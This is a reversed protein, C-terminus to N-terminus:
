KVEEMYQHLFEFGWGNGERLQAYGNDIVMPNDIIADIWDFSEAGYPNRVTALLPVDYDKYYHPLVPINYADALAASRIWEEVGGLRIIDPQWLDIARRGILERLAVTNYEREGMALSVRTKSHISAYGEFDTNVVPEEFWHINLHEVANVLKIASPVDMGQNADMMIKLDNGVVERVKTLREVDENMDPHGVKIKVAQFGRKKYDVVEDVLEQETYSIWGGSGYVPIKTQEGGFLKYLPMGLIKGKLDWLAIDIASLACFMLGKRGVGRLYAVLENWIVETEFPDRGILRPKINKEIMLKTAEGGVEHYTVGFGETGDDTIVRVVTFGVTEVKRTADAFGGTIPRSVLHVKIDRIKSNQM